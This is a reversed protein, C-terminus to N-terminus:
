HRLPQRILNRFAGDRGCLDPRGAASSRNQIRSGASRKTDSELVFARRNSNRQNLRAALECLGCVPDATRSTNSIRQRHISRLFRAARAVSRPLSFCWRLHHSAAHHLTSTGCRTISRTAASVDSRARSRVAAACGATALRLAEREPQAHARLDVFPIKIHTPAPQVIQVGEDGAWEFTTRWAEHRRVVETFSRELASVNLEGHRHITIPENYILYAGALQSHLWIQQQSYSLPAPGSGARKPITASKAEKRHM